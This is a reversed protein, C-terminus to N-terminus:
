TNVIPSAAKSNHVENYRKREIHTYPSIFAQSFLNPAGLKLVFRACAINSYISLTTEM